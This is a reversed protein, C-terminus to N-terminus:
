EAADAGSGGGAHPIQKSKKSPVSSILCQRTTMHQMSAANVPPPIADVRHKRFTAWQATKDDELWCLRVAACRINDNRHKQWKKAKRRGSEHVPTRVCFYEHTDEIM